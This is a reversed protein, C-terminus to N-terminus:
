FGTSSSLTQLHLKVDPLCKIKMLLPVARFHGTNMSVVGFHAAIDACISELGHFDNQRKALKAYDMLLAFECLCIQYFGKLVEQNTWCAQTDASDKM